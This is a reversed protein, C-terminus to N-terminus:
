AEGGDVADYFRQNEAQTEQEGAEAQSARHKEAAERQEKAVGKVVARFEKLVDPIEDTTQTEHVLRCELQGGVAELVRPDRDVSSGGLRVESGTM